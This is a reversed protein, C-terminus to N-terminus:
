ATFRVRRRRALLYGGLGALALLVGAGAVVGTPAGTVPLGGGEGGGGGPGGSAPNVLLKAKDNAPKLDLERPFGECPCPVNVEVTGAANSIVKDIRLRFTFTTSGGAVLVIGPDCRYRGAGARDPHEVDLEDGNMAFCNEPVGVVTTGPPVVLDVRTVSSGSREFALTAPGNNAVGVEAEVEDGAAGTVTDGIAALDAGNKGTIKLTLLTWNNEPDVDAQAGRALAPAQQVLELEPGDGPTGLDFGNQTLYDAYDEFEARTMVAREGVATGPAYADKAVTYAPTATFTQGPGIPTDFACSRLRGDLYRCNRYRTASGLAFDDFFLANFGEVASDHPNRVTLPASFTKGPGASVEVEPGAAIDVAEGVRVKATHSASTFGPAAFTVKLSGEDGAVAGPAATLVFDFLGALGFEDTGIDFPDQCVLLTPSQSTCRDEDVEESVDVKGGLGSLDVTVTADPLVVPESAYLIAGQLVGPGGAAVTTNGFYVSLEAAPAQAAAPMATAAILTGAVGLGTFWRRTRNTHM